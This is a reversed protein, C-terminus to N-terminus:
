CISDFHWDGIMAVICSQIHQISQGREPRPHMSCRTNLGHNLTVDLSVLRYALEDKHPSTRSSKM